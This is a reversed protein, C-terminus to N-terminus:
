VVSKRDRSSPPKPKEVVPKEVKIIPKEEEVIEEAVIAPEELVTDVEADEEVEVDVVDEVESTETEVIEAVAIGGEEAAAPAVKEMERKMKKQEGKSVYDFPNEYEFDTDDNELIQERRDYFADKGKAGCNYCEVFRNFFRIERGKAIFMTTGCEKCTWAHLVKEQEKSTIVHGWNPQRKFISQKLFFKARIVRIAAVAFFFIVLKKSQLPRQDPDEDVFGASKMTDTLREIATATGEKKIMRKTAGFVGSLFEGDRKWGSLALCSRHQTSSAKPTSQRFAFLTPHKLSTTTTRPLTSFGDSFRVLSVALSLILATRRRLMKM